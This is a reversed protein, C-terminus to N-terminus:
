FAMGATSSLTATALHWTNDNYALPSNLTVVSGPYVGFYIQGANNMYIQRDFQSSSGTQANGFGILKGGTITSTKFWISVTFDTPNSYVNATSVYQTSGNFSYAQIANTFRDAIVTPSNQLTGNNIGLADNANGTFKYNAVLGASPIQSISTSTINVTITAQPSVCGGVTQTVLYNTSGATTTLPTPATANTSTIFQINNFCRNGASTVGTVNMNGTPESIPFAPNDSGITGTGASVGISYNGPAAITYNFTNSIRSASAGSSFTTNTTSTAIITGSGNYISLVLGSITQYAPVYFDVTTINVNAVITSFNTRKNNFSNDVYTATALTTTGGASGSAGGWLLSTGAATLQVATANQCYNVPSTVVPAAPPVCITSKNGSLATASLGGESVSYVKWYYLTNATLGSQVSSTANAATQTVFTYNIGDTSRYILFGTENSSVDAWNLTMAASTVGSFTLGAPAAPVPPTFSYINGTIPKSTVSAELSSSVTTGTNKVSLFNGSGTATAAIGISASTNNVSGSEQRYIFEIRGTTEYLKVQFSIVTSSATRSWKINIYQITFIRSGATGTTVYTINNTSQDDLDDWLPALIPRPAGGSSLNNVPTANTINAGLTIWGNSSASITTYRIGMYWFDFGIPIGNANGEDATGSGAAPLIGGSITTFTGSSASFTYNTITQSIVNSVGISFVMALIFFKKNM